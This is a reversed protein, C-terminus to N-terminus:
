HDRDARVAELEQELQKQSMQKAKAALKKKTKAEKKKAM